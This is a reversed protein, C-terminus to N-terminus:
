FLDRRGARVRGACLSLLTRSSPQPLAQSLNCGDELSPIHLYCQHVFYLNMCLCHKRPQISGRPLSITDRCAWLRYFKTRNWAGCYHIYLHSQCFPPRRAISPLHLLARLPTTPSYPPKCVQRYWLRRTDSPATCRPLTTVIVFITQVEM